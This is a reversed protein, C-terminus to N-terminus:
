HTRLAREAKIDGLVPAPRTTEGRTTWCCGSSRGMAAATMMSLPMTRITLRRTSSPWSDHCNGAPFTSGPSGPSEAATRSARSSVPKVTRATPRSPPLTCGMVSRIMSYTAQSITSPNACTAARSSIASTAHHSRAPRAAAPTGPQRQDKLDLAALKTRVLEDFAEAAVREDTGLLDLRDAVHRGPMTVIMEPFGIRESTVTIAQDRLVALLHIEDHGFSAIQYDGVLLQGDTWGYSAPRPEPEPLTIRRLDWWLRIRDILQWWAM